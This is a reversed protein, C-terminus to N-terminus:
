GAISTGATRHEVILAARAGAVQTDAEDAFWQLGRVGIDIVGADALVGPALVIDLAATLLADAQTDADGESAARATAELFFRTQWGHTATTDPSGSSDALDVNVQRAVHTPMPRKRGAVVSVDLMADDAQLLAQIAARLALHASQSM